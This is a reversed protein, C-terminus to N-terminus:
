YLFSKYRNHKRRCPERFVEGREMDGFMKNGDGELMVVTNSMVVDVQQELEVDVLRGCIEIDVFDDGDIFM